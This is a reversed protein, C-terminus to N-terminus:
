NEEDHLLQQRVGEVLRGEKLDKAAQRLDVRSEECLWRLEKKAEYSLFSM